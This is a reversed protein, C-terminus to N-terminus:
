VHARGIETVQTQMWDATRELQYAYSEPLIQLSQWAPERLVPTDFWVRQYTQSFQQRLQLIWQMLPRFGTVSLNNMTVIFTLSNRYPIEDLYRNVYRELREFSLGHRIYEAQGPVGSDLSVYQMYHEIDTNCLRKVSTLYKEFLEPEVSFNSTVNLIPLAM